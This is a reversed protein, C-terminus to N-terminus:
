GVPVEIDEDALFSRHGKIDMAKISTEYTAMISQIMTCTISRLRWSGVGGGLAGLELWKIM